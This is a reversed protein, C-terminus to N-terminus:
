KVFSHNVPSHGQGLNPATRIAATVFEKATKVAAILTKGNALNAAIAAALTCGTGHTATTEIWDAEFVRLESGFFLFDKAKKTENKKSSQISLHGGKILVNKAGFSQILKAARCIDTESEIKMRTIREAEPINPMVIISLPFLKEILSELAAENILDFGSTSRVVPDVVFNKLKYKRVIRAAEAIIERTPLMGTKLASVEFDRLIPEIQGRVSEGTQHIAGFVGTTNQFTLSTVAATAFCNFATFTKIDAIIGAGGSPDLGAITLCIKQKSKETKSPM